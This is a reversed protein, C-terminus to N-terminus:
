YIIIISLLQTSIITGRSPSPSPSPSPHVINRVKREFADGKHQSKPFGCVCDGFTVASIDVKYNSCPQQARMIQVYQTAKKRRQCLQLALAVSTQARLIAAAEAEAKAARVAEVQTVATKRRQCSQLALAVNTQARLIAAAEAEAEEADRRLAEIRGLRETEAREESIHAVAAAARGGEENDYEEVQPKAEVEVKEHSLDVANQNEEAVEM